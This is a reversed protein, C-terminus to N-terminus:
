KRDGWHVDLHAADEAHEAKLAEELRMEGTKGLSLNIQEVLFDRSDLGL